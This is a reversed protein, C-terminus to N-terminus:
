LITKNPQTKVSLCMQIQLFNSKKKPEISRQLLSLSENYRSVVIEIHTYNTLMQEEQQKQKEEQM